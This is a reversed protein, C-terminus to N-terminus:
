FKKERKVYSTHLIHHAKESGPEGLYDAYVTKVIPNDHSRRQPMNEDQTYLAKARLGKLDTFNRVSASQIPQGGGNVCGGPCGMFEIFQYTKEGSEVSKLVKDCNALGSAVCVNLTLEGVKYTAEKIGDTGRVATFNVDDAEKGTV